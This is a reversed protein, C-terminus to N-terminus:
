KHTSSFCLILVGVFNKASITAWGWKPRSLPAQGWNQVNHRNEKFFLLALLFISPAVVPRLAGCSYTQNPLPPSLIRECVASTQKKMWSSMKIMIIQDFCESWLYKLLMKWIKVKLQIHNESLYSKSEAVLAWTDFSPGSRFNWAKFDPRLLYCDSHVCLSIKLCMMANCQM